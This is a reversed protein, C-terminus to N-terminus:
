RGYLYAEIARLKQQIFEEYAARDKKLYLKMSEEFPSWLADYQRRFEDQWLPSIAEHHREVDRVSANLRENFRELAHLFIRMREATEDLSM